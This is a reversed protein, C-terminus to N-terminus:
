DPRLPFGQAPFVGFFIIDILDQSFILPVSLGRGGLHTDMGAGEPSFDFTEVYVDRFFVFGRGPFLIGSKCYQLSTKKRANCIHFGRIRLREKTKETIRLLNLINFSHKRTQAVQCPDHEVKLCGGANLVDVCVQRITKISRLDHGPGHINKSFQRAPRNKKCERPFHTILDAPIASAPPGEAPLECDKSSM